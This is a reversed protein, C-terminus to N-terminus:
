GTLESSNYRCVSMCVCVCVCVCVYGSVGWVCVYGSVWGGVGVWGCVCVCVCVCNGNERKGRRWAVELLSIIPSKLFENYTM